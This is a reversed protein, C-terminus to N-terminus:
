AAAKGVHEEYRRAFLRQDRDSSHEGKRYTADMEGKGWYPHLHEVVADPAAVFAGTHRAVATWENDVFCHRYGEHCLVGPGDWSAGHEDVWERRILPHTAHQGSTVARNGLDNTAVLPFRGQAARVARDYWGPHFLVDDGVLLMWPESTHRYGWNAKVPFTGHMGPELVLVRAGAAKAAAQEEVDDPDCVFYATALGTTARLSAMFPAANAPRGLVPVIVAVPETAPLPAREALYRAETLFGPKQHATKVGTHVHLPIDAKLLRLCFSLDESFREGDMALPTWWNEGWEAKLKELVDRHILVCAAGTGACRVVQDRPYDLLPKFGVKDDERALEYVTPKISYEPTWLVPDVEPIGQAFCLGGVVPRDVRDAAQVLREVTDPPFAMDSDVMFLWEAPGALFKGTVENRQDAIRTASCFSPYQAGGDLIRRPGQLDWLKLADLSHHFSSSMETPHLYGVAVKGPTM